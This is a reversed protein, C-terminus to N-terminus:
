GVIQVTNADTLNIIPRKLFKNKRGQTGPVITKKAMYPKYHKKPAAAGRYDVKIWYCLICACHIYTYMNYAVRHDSELNYM